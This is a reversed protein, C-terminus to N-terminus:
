APVPADLALSASMLVVWALYPLYLSRQVLGSIEPTSVMLVLSVVLLALALAFAPMVTSQWRADQRMGFALLLLSAPLIFFGLNGAAVHIVGSVSVDADLADIPFLGSLIASVGTVYLLAIGIRWLRIPAGGRGLAYALALVGLGLGVNAITLLYGHAGIGYYSLATVVPDLEPRLIHLAIVCMVFVAAGAISVLALRDTRGTTM